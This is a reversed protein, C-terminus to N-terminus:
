VIQLCYFNYFIQLLLAIKASKSVWNPKLIRVFLTYFDALLHLLENYTLLLSCINEARRFIKGCRFFNYGNTPRYTFYLVSVTEFPFYILQAYLRPIITYKLAILGHLSIQKIYLTYIFAKLRSWLSYRNDFKWM